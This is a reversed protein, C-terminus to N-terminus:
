ALDDRTIGDGSAVDRALKRGYVEHRYRPEIGPRLVKETRLLATNETTLVTGAKLPGVAHISRNTRGYNASEAAALRKVGDGLCAEV